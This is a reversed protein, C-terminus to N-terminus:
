RRLAADIDAVLLVGYVRGESDLVLLEERGRRAVETILETGALDRDIATDADIPRSVSSVSVWPRRQEPVAAIADQHGIALPVGRADVIVLAGAGAASARRIAEGLPLDRDVPIARRALTGATLTAAKERLDVARLQASAGSYLMAAVIGAILYVIIDPQIGLAVSLLVPSLLTLLAVGRGVWGAVVTGRRESGSAAWILCRLVNGGDLPIGPLSNYIGILVNAWILARAVAAAASTPDLVQSIAYTVGAVAFTAIPGAAAVAAEALPAQRTREFHTVGGLLQLVVRHVPFGLARAVLAHAFEHILTALSLLVAFAGALIWPSVSGEITFAPIWLYALLGM